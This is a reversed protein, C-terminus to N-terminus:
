VLTAQLRSLSLILSLPSRECHCDGGRQAAFREDSESESINPQELNPPCTFTNGQNIKEEKVEGSIPQAKCHCLGCINLLHCRSGISECLRIAGSMITLIVYTIMIIIIITIIIIIILVNIIVIKLLITAASCHDGEEGVDQDEEGEGEWDPAADLNAEDDDDGDGVDGDDDDDNYSYLQFVDEKEDDDDDHDQSWKFTTWSYSRATM